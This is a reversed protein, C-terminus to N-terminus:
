PISKALICIALIHMARYCELVDRELTKSKADMGM